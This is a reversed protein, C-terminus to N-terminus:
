LAPAPAHASHPTVHNPAQQAGLLELLRAPSELHALKAGGRELLDLIPRHVLRDRQLLLGPEVHDGVALQPAVREEAMQDVGTSAEVLEAAPGDREVVLLALSSTNLRGTTTSFSRQRRLM